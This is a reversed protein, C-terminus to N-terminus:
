GLMSCHHQAYREIKERTAMKKKALETIEASIEKIRDTNGAEKAFDLCGCLQNIRCQIRTIDEQGKRILGLYYTPIQNM